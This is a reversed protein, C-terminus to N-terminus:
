DKTIREQHIISNQKVEQFLKEAFVKMSEIGPHSNDRAFDLVEPGFELFRELDFIHSLDDMDQTIVSGNNISTYYWEIEYQSLLMEVLKYNRYFNLQDDYKSVLGLYHNYIDRETRSRSLNDFHNNLNYYVGDAAIYDRRSPATFCVIVIDPELIPIAELLTRSIYDNSGGSLSLNWNTVNLGLYASLKHRM